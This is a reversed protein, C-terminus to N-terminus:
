RRRQALGEAEAADADEPAAASPARAVRAAVARVGPHAALWHTAWWQALVGYCRVREGVPLSEAALMKLMQLYGRRLRRDLPILGEEQWPECRLPYARMEQLPAPLQVLRGRLALQALLARQAGPFGGHLLSGRLTSARILGHFDASSQLGQVVWALRRPASPADAGKLGSDHVGLVTGSPDIRSILSNCLVVEARKELVAVTSELYTPLLREDQALWKFYRGRGREFALGYNAFRVNRSNRFYRIRPEGAARKRCIEATRDGSADDQIILEFDGMSQALVSRIAEEVQSEANFVSLGISVLPIKAVARQYSM